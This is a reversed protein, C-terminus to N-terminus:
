QKKPYDFFIFEKEATRFSEWHDSKVRFAFISCTPMNDLKVLQLSNAFETIGSNHSFIAVFKDKDDFKEIVSFFTDPSHLYLEPTEIIDSKKREYTSAFAWATSFARKAPSSVFRDVKAKRELLRNAMMPADRKGRDNLPRDQDEHPGSWDSKAHRILYVTKMLQLIFWKCM